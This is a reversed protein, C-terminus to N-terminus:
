GSEGANYDTLLYNIAAALFFSVFYRRAKPRRMAGAVWPILLLVPVFPTDLQGHVRMPIVRKLALRNDSLLVIAAAMAGFTYCIKREVGEMELLNPAMFEAAIFGYDIAIHATPDIPKPVTM